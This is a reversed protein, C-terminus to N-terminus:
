SNLSLEINIFKDKKNLNLVACDSSHFTEKLIRGNSKRIIQLIFLNIEYDENDKFIEHNM